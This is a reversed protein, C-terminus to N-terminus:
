CDTKDFLYQNWRHSTFLVEFTDAKDHRNKQSSTQFSLNNQEVTSLLLLRDRTVPLLWWCSIERTLRWNTLIPEWYYEPCSVGLNGFEESGLICCGLWSDVPPLGLLPARPHPTPPLPHPYLCRKSHIGMTWDWTSSSCMRRVVSM